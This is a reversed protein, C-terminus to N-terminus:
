RKLARISVAFLYPQGLYPQYDEVNFAASLQCELRGLEKESLVKVTGGIQINEGVTTQPGSRMVNNDKIILIEGTSSYGKLVFSRDTILRFVSGEVTVLENQFTEPNMLIADIEVVVQQSSATKVMVYSGLFVIALLFLVFVALSILWLRARDKRKKPM